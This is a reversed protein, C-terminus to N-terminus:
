GLAALMREIDDLTTYHAISTRVVGQPYLGLDRLPQVAYFHGAAVDVGAATLRLATQEPSEGAVRFAVTGVRGQTGQPGYVTVLDHTLLGEVLRAMVPAELEHIRQSAAELAARTLEPHGGLERLYDLTGLWGALLEFQPTGHEMGTIDGQPVFELKPWPLTARLEPRLWMAGLHPAWVKYPSFTVFDAGWTQVDPFAHPAAHVADVISWAGAARVQATIAPIDPTVGLANSAATVAVLRTRPSLLTALDDPHLTMDPQLAHWVKVTVGQRELERWPSANSEHELGSLIVEDGEGWLRAFAAALRFTLATASQALAVDEPQANMFLATAERARVKLALIEAGPRHGPMANTAGYRTLHETVAQIARTPILGGAANDLYSRGSQLQPFQARLDAQSPVAATTM